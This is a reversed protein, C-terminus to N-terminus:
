LETRTVSKYNASSVAKWREESTNPSSGEEEAVQPLKPEDKRLNNVNLQAIDASFQNIGDIHGNGQEKRKDDEPVRRFYNRVVEQM